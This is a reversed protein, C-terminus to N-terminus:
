SKCTYDGKGPVSIKASDPTGTLKWGGDATYPEGASPATLRNIAGGKETRVYVLKNGDFFTVYLLINGPQCRMSKDATIAPPLEVPPRNALEAAMPDPNTDIVEPKKPQSNCAALTCLAAAAALLLPSKM